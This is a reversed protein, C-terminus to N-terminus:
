IPPRPLGPSIAGPGGATAKSAGDLRQEDFWKGELIEGKEGLRDPEVHVSVCGNLYETRATAIGSFGTMGDTVKMGLKVMANRRELIQSALRRM